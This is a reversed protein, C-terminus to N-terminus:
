RTTTPLFFAALYCDMKFHQNCTSLNYIYTVMRSIQYINYIERNEMLLVYNKPFFIYIRNVTKM